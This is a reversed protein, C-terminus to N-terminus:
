TLADITGFVNKVQSEKAILNNYIFVAAFIFVAKVIIVVWM